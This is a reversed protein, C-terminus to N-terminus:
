AGALDHYLRDIDDTLREIDFRALVHRPRAAGMEARRMPNALLEGVADAFAATDDLPVRRGM